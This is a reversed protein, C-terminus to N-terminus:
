NTANTRAALKPTSKLHRTPTPSLLNGAKLTTMWIFFTVFIEKSRLLSPLKIKNLSIQHPIEIKRYVKRDFTAVYPQLTGLCVGVPCPMPSTSGYSQRQWEAVVGALENPSNTDRLDLLKWCFLLNRSTKDTRQCTCASRSESFAQKGTVKRILSSRSCLTEM